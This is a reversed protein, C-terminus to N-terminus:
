TEFLLPEDDRVVFQNFQLNFDPVYTSIRFIDPAIEDVRTMHKGKPPGRETCHDASSIQYTYRTASKNCMFYTSISISSLSASSTRRIPATSRSASVSNNRRMAGRM